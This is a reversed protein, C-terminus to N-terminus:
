LSIVETNHWEMDTGLYQVWWDHDEHDIEVRVSVYENPRLEVEYYFHTENKRIYHLTANKYVKQLQNTITAKIM